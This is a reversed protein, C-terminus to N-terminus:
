GEVVLTGDGLMSELQVDLSEYKVLLSAKIRSASDMIVSALYNEGGLDIDDFKSGFLEAFKEDDLKMIVARSGKRLFSKNRNLWGRVESFSLTGAYMIEGFAAELIKMRKEEPDETLLEASKEGVYDILGKFIKGLM